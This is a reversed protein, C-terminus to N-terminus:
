LSWKTISSAEPLNYLKAVPTSFLADAPLKWDLGLLYRPRNRSKRVPKAAQLGNLISGDYGSTIEVGLVAAVLGIYLRRLNAKRYWPTTDLSLLRKRESQAAVQAVDITKGLVM